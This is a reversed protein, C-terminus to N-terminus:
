RRDTMEKEETTRSKMEGTGLCEPCQLLPWSWMPKDQNKLFVVKHGRCVTCVVTSDIVGTMNTIPPLIYERYNQSM